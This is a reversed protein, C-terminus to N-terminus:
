KRSGNAPATMRLRAVNTHIIGILLFMLQIFGVEHYQSERQNEKHHAPPHAPAHNLEMDADLGM